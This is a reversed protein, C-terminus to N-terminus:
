SLRRHVAQKKRIKDRAGKRILEVKHTILALTRSEREEEPAEGHRAKFAPVMEPSTLRLFHVFSEWERLLGQRQFASCGIDLVQESRVRYIDPNM